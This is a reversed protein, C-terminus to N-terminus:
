EITVTTCYGYGYIVTEDSVGGVQFVLDEYKYGGPFLTAWNYGRVSPKILTLTIKPDVALRSIIQGPTMACDPGM